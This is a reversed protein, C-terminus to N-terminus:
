YLVACGYYCACRAANPLRQRHMHRLAAAMQGQHINVFGAQLLSDLPCGL